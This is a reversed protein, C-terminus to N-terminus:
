FRIIELLIHRLSISSQVGTSDTKIHLVLGGPVHPVMYLGVVEPVGESVFTSEAIRCKSGIVGELIM